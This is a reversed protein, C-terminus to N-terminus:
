KASSGTSGRARAPVGYVTTGAAVDGIVAAGAGVIADAGIRVRPVVSAGTGVFAADGVAVLGALTAGPALHVGDGLASEHDVSARTNVICCRGATVRAAIVAGALIQSGAGLAADRAVYAAPHVLVPLALGARTLREAIALRARGHTGGIAVAGCLAETRGACWTEFADGHVLPVGDLPSQAAADNDVLAVITYGIASAFEALVVAQGTAGWVVLSQM